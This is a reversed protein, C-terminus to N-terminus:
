ADEDANTTEKEPFAARRIAEQVAPPFDFRRGGVGYVEVGEVGPTTSVVIGQWVVTAM